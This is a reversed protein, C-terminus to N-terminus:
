IGVINRKDGLRHFEGCCCPGVATDCKKLGSYVPPFWDPFMMFYVTTPVPASQDQKMKQMTVIFKIMAVSSDTSKNNSSM